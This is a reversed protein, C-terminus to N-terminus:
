SNSLAPLLVELSILRGGCHDLVRRAFLEAQKKLKDSDYPEPAYLVLAATHTALDIATRQSDTMPSGFAGIEDVLVYRNHLSITRNNLALYEDEQTGTRITVAGQIKDADYIGIPLLFDLSCWNGVDVLSNVSYLEKGKLARQLLAESSPRRKTPDIGIARFLARAAQVGAVEGITRGAYLQQYSEACESLRQFATSKKDVHVGGVQIIVAQAPLSTSVNWIQNVM